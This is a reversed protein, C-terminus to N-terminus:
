YGPDDDEADGANADEASDGTDPHILAMIELYLDRPYPVFQVNRLAQDQGASEVEFKAYGLVRGFMSQTFLLDTV